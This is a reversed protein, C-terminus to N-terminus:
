PRTRASRGSPSSWRTRSRAVALDDAATVLVHGAPGAPWLGDLDAPDSVGDLIVLWPQRTEALWALFRAATTEADEAPVM